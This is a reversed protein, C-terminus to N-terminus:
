DQRLVSFRGSKVSISAEDQIRSADFAFTGSIAVNNADVITVTGTDTALFREATSSGAYQFSQRLLEASRIVYTKEEIPGTLVLELRDGALNEGFIAIGLIGDERVRVVAPAVAIWRGGSINAEMYVQVEPGMESGTVPVPTATGDCGAAASIILAACWICKM